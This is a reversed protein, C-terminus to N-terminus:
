KRKWRVNCSETMMRKFDKWVDIARGYGLNKREVNCKMVSRSFQVQRKVKRGGTSSQSGMSFTLDKGASFLRLVRTRVRGFGLCGFSPADSLMLFM